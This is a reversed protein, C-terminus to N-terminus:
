ALNLINKVENLVDEVHISCICEGTCKKNQNLTQCFIQCPSKFICKIPSPGKPAWILPSSAGFLAIVPCHSAAALHTIGSDNGILIQCKSLFSSLSILDMGRLLNDNDRFPFYAECEGAIWYVKYGKQVLYDAVIQFREIPWNKLRSGSGPAIAVVPPSSYKTHDPDKNFIPKLSTYLPSKSISNDKFLSIHYDIIPIQESPFPPQYLIKLDPFRKANLLLPSDSSTFLLFISFEEFFLKRRYDQETENFLFSYRDIDLYSDAYEAKCALEGFSKRCL